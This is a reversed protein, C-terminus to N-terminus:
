NQLDLCPGTHACPFDYEFLVVRLEGDLNSSVIIGFDIIKGYSQDRFFRTLINLGLTTRAGGDHTIMAPKMPPLAPASVFLEYIDGFNVTDDRTHTIM